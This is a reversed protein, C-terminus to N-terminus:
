RARYIYDDHQVSGDKCGTSFGDDLFALLKGASRGGKAKQASTAAPVGVFRRSGGSAGAGVFSPLRGAESAKAVYEALASRVIESTSAGRRRALSRVQALLAKAAVITMRHM